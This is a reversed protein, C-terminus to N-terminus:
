QLLLCNVLCAIMKYCIFGNMFLTLSLLPFIAIFLILLISLRRLRVVNFKRQFNGALLSNIFQLIRQQLQLPTNKWLDFYLVFHKFAFHNSVVSEKPDPTAGVLSLLTEIIESNLLTSKKRLFNAV